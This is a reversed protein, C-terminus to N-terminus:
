LGPPKTLFWSGQGRGVLERYTGALVDTYRLSDYDQAM